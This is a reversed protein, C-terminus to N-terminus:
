LHHRQPPQSMLLTAIKRELSTTEEKEDITGPVIIEQQEFSRFEGGSTRITEVSLGVNVTGITGILVDFLVFLVFFFRDYVIM